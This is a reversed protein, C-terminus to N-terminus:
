LINIFFNNTQQTDYILDCKTGILILSIEDININKAFEISNTFLTIMTGKKIVKKFQPLNIQYRYSSDYVVIPDSTLFIKNSYNM